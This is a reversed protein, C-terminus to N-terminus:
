LVVSVAMLFRDFMEIHVVVRFSLKSKCGLSYEFGSAADLAESQCM